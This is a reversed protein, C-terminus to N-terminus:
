RRRRRLEDGADPDRLAATLSEVSETANAGDQSLQKAAKYRSETDGSTLSASPPSAKQCGALLVAGLVILRRAEGRSPEALDYMSDVDPPRPTHGFGPQSPAIVDAHRGLLDLFPAEPPVAAFGHLLVLPAGSGRRAVEVDIGRVSLRM